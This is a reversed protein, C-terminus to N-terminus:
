GAYAKGCLPVLQRMIEHTAAQLTKYELDLGRFETLDVPPGFRITVDRAGTLLNTLSQLFTAGGPGVIGVPIVPANTVLALRAIGTKGQLLRPNPNREGEIFNCIIKGARLHSFADDISASRRASDISITAQTWWYNNSKTLFYVQHRRAEHVAAAIYFGDLFDIHNAALIYPGREPLHDTGSVEALKRRFIPLLISRLTVYVM